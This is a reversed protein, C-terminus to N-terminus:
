LASAFKSQLALLAILKWGIFTQRLRLRVNHTQMPAAGVQALVTGAAAGRVGWGLGFIFVAGLVVNIINSALTAYFPTRTDQFGRYCGQFICAHM